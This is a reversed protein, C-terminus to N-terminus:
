TQKGKFRNRVVRVAEGTTLKDVPLDLVVNIIDAIANHSFRFGTKLGNLKDFHGDFSLVFDKVDSERGNIVHEPYQIHTPDSQMGEFSAIAAVLDSRNPWYKLDYQYTLSKLKKSVHRKYLYNGVCAQEILDDFFQYQSKSFGSAEYLESQRNLKEALTSALEVIEEKLARLEKFNERAEIVDKKSYDCSCWIHELTLWVYGNCPPYGKFKDSYGFADILEQFPLALEDARDIMREMVPWYSKWLQGDNRYSDLERQIFAKCFVTPNETPLIM